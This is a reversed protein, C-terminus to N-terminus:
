DEIYFTDKDEVDNGNPSTNRGIIFHFGSWNRLAQWFRQEPHDECYKIFSKLTKESKM